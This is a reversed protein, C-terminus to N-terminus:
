KTPFLNKRWYILFFIFTLWNTFNLFSNIFFILPFDIIWHLYNTLVNLLTISYLYLFYRPKILFLFPIFWSLYQISFGFTFVYFFIFLNLFSPLLNQYKIKTSYLFFGFLFLILFSKQLFIPPQPKNPFFLLNILKGFGWFNFLSRYTLPIKIVEVINAKFILSYILVSILPFFFLFLLNIKNKVRKVLPIVFLIPWTKILIAFSYSIIALFEKKKKILYLTLLIFFLPIVDFQGHFFFIFISIPNLAYLLATKQNKKDLLYILYIIGLDFLLNIFKLFFIDNINYKQLYAALGELYLYFPLYPYHIKATQPYINNKQIILQGVKKYSSLDFNLLDKSLIITIIRIILAFFLVLRM